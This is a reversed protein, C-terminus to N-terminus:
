RKGIADSYVVSLAVSLNDASMPELPNNKKKLTPSPATTSVEDAGMKHDQSSHPLITGGGIMGGIILILVFIGKDKERERQIKKWEEETGHFPVKKTDVRARVPTATLLLFLLYPLIKKM